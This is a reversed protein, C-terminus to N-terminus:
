SNRSKWGDCIKELFKVREILWKIDQIAVNYEADLEDIDACLISTTSELRLILM